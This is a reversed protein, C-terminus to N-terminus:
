LGLNSVRVWRVDTIASPVVFRRFSNGSPLAVRQFTFTRPIGDRVVQLTVSGYLSYPNPNSLIVDVTSQAAGSSFGIAKAYVPM